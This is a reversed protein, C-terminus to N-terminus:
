RMVYMPSIAGRDGGKIDIERLNYRTKLEMNVGESTWYGKTVWGGTPIGLAEEAKLGAIDAGIQGGSVM